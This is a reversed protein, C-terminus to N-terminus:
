SPAARLDSFPLGTSHFLHAQNVQYTFHPCSSTGLHFKSLALAAGLELAFYLGSNMVNRTIPHGDRLQLLNYAMLLLTLLISAGVAPLGFVMSFSICCPIICLYFIYAQHPTIRGSPIPRQPKDIRDEEGSNHQNSLNAQLLHM